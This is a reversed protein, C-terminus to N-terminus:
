KNKFIISMWQLDGCGVDVINKINNKQIFAQLWDILYNNNEIFSGDGSGRGEWGGWDNYLVNWEEATINNRDAINM